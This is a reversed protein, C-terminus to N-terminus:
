WERHRVRGNWWGSVGSAFSVIDVLDRAGIDNIFNENFVTLNLPLNILETRTRTGSLAQPSYYGEESQDSVVFPSLVVAEDAPSGTATSPAPATQGFASLALIPLGAFIRWLRSAATSTFKM